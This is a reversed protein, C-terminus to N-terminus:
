HLTKGMTSQMLSVIAKRTQCALLLRSMANFKSTTKSTQEVDMLPIEAIFEAHRVTKM